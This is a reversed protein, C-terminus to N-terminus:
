ENTIPASDDWPCHPKAALIKRYEAEADDRVKILTKILLTRNPDDIPTHKASPSCIARYVTDCAREWSMRADNEAQTLPIRQFLSVVLKPKTSEITPIDSPMM